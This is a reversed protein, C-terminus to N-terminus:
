ILSYIKLYQEVLNNYSFTESRKILGLSIEKPNRRSFNVIADKILEVNVVGPYLEGLVEKHPPIDTAIVPTGVSAAEVLTMGFGEWKSTSILIDAWLLEKEVEGTRGELTVIESLDLREIEKELNSREEGDGFIKLIVPFNEKKLESIIRLLNTQGKQENLRAINILRLPNHFSDKVRANQAIFGPSNYIVEMKSSPYYRNKIGYEKVCESVAIIKTALFGTLKRTIFDRRDDNPECNHVTCYRKKVGAIWAAIQGIRDATLLHTHVIDPKLKKIEKAVFFPRRWNPVTNIPLYVVPIEEKEFDKLLQYNEELIFVTFEIDKNVKKVGSCIKLLLTEAGGCNLNNIIHLVKM